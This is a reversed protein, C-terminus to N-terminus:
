RLFKEGKEDSINDEDMKKSSPLITVATLCLSLLHWWHGVSVLVPLVTWHKGQCKDMCGEKDIYNNKNGRCGGFIFPQCSGTEKNFYWRPFAARCPGVQPEAECFEATCLVCTGIQWKLKIISKENATMQEYVCTHSIVRQGSNSWEGTYEEASMEAPCCVFLFAFWCRSDTLRSRSHMIFLSWGFSSHESHM